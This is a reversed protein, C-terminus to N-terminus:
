WIKLLLMITWYFSRVPRFRNDEHFNSRVGVNDSQASFIESDPVILILSSTPVKVPLFTGRDWSFSVRTLPRLSMRTAFGWLSSSVPLWRVRDKVYVCVHTYPLTHTRGFDRTNLGPVPTPIGLFFPIPLTSFRTEQFHYLYSTSMNYM